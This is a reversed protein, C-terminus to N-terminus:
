NKIAPTEQFQDDERKEDISRLSNRANTWEADM